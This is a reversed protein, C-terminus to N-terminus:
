RQEMCAQKHQPNQQRQKCPFPRVVVSILQLPPEFAETLAAADAARGLTNRCLTDRYSRNESRGQLSRQLPPQHKWGGRCHGRYPRSTNEAAGTTSKQLPPQIVLRGQQTYKYPRNLWSGGRCHIKWCFFYIIWIWIQGYIYIIWIRIQGGCIYMYVDVFIWHTVM